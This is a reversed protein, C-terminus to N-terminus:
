QQAGTLCVDIRGLHVLRYDPEEETGMNQMGWAAVFRACPLDDCDRIIEGHTVSKPLEMEIFERGNIEGIRERVARLAPILYQERFRPHEPMFIAPLEFDVGFQQKM